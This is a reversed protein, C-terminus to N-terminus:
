ARPAIPAVVIKHPSAQAQRGSAIRSVRGVVSALADESMGQLSPLACSVLWASSSHMAIPRVWVRSAWGLESLWVGMPGSPCERCAVVVVESMGELSPPPCSVLWVSLSHVVAPREWVRLVRDLGESAWTPEANAYAAM